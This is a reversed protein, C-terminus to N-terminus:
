RHRRRRLSYYGSLMQIVRKDTAPVCKTNPHRVLDAALSGRVIGANKKSASYRGDKTLYHRQGDKTLWCFFGTRSPKKRRAM